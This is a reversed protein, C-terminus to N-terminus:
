ILAEQKILVIFENESIIQINAKGSENLEKAYAEKRSLGNEDVFEPEKEGVVLFHVKKSINSKVTAGVDVAYQMAKKRDISLQGTFVICKQYLPHTEDFETAKPTIDKVSIKQYYKRQPKSKGHIQYTEQTDLDFFHNIKINEKSFCFQGINNLGSIDLCKLVIHACTIADDLANHHQGMDIGLYEACHQLSKTGPVYDRAISVSDVYKFNPSNYYYLSQNLVSMDFYANHAVVLYPGFFRCIESLWLDDLSPSEKVMDATIGNIEINKANFNLDHPQILSYFTDVREGNQVAAIGISCASDYRNSATEFDIAVFDFRNM